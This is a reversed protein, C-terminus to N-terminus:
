TISVESVEGAGDGNALGKYSDSKEENCMAVKVYKKEGESKTVKRPM